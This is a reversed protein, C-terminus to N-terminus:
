RATVARGFFELEGEGTSKVLDGTRYMRTVPRRSGWGADVPEHFCAVSLRARIRERQM